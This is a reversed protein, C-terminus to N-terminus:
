GQDEWLPVYLCAFHIRTAKLLDISRESSKGLGSQAGREEEAKRWANPDGSVMQPRQEGVCEGWVLEDVGLSLHGDPHLTM